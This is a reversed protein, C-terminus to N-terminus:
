RLIEKKNKRCCKLLEQVSGNTKNSNNQSYEGIRLLYCVARPRVDAMAQALTDDKM